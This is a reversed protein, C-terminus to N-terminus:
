SRTDVAAMRLKTLSFFVLLAKVSQALASIARQKERTLQPTEVNVSQGMSLVHFGKSARSYHIVRSNRVYLDLAYRRENQLMQSDTDTFKCECSWGGRYKTDHKPIFM